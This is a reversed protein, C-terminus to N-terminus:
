ADEGGAEKSGGSGGIANAARRLMDAVRDRITRPRPQPRRAWWDEFSGAASFIEDLLTLLESPKTVRSMVSLDGTGVGNFSHGCHWLDDDVCLFRDHLGRRTTARVDIAGFGLAPERMAVIQAVLEEGTLMAAGAESSARTYYRKPPSILGQIEVGQQEVAYAFEQLDAAVLYPDVLIIRRRARAVIRRIFRVAEERENEFARLNHQNGRAQLPRYEGFRDQRLRQLQELRMVPSTTVVPKQVESSRWISSVLPETVTSRRRRMPNAIREGVPVNTQMSFSRFFWGPPEDHLLGRRPCVIQHGLEEVGGTILASAAGFADTVHEVHIGTGAVRREHFVIKLGDLTVGRRPRGAVTVTETGNGRASIRTRSSGLLPNPAILGIGGLWDDHALLDFHLRELLWSRARQYREVSTMGETMEVIPAPLPQMSVLRHLRPMVHWAPSFPVDDRLVLRRVPPEPSLAGLSIKIPADPHDQTPANWCTQYWDLAASLPLVNRSMYLRGPGCNMRQADNPPSPIEPPLLEVSAFLLYNHGDQALTAIRVVGRDYDGNVLGAWPESRAVGGAL